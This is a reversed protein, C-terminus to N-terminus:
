LRIVGKHKEIKKNILTAKSNAGEALEVIKYLPPVVKKDREEKTNRFIISTKLKIM